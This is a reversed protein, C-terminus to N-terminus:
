HLVSVIHQRCHVAVRGSRIFRQECKRVFLPAYEDGFVFVETLQYEHAAHRVRAYHAEYVHLDGLLHGRHEVQDFVTRIRHALAGQYYDGLAPHPYTM